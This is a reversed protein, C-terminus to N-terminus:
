HGTLSGCRKIPGDLKREPRENALRLKQGLDPLKSGHQQSPTTLIRQRMGAGIRLAALLPM